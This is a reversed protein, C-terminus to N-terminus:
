SVLQYICETLYIHGFRLPRGCFPQAHLLRAVAEGVSRATRLPLTKYPLPPCAARCMQPCALDCHLQLSYQPCCVLWSHTHYRCRQHRLDSEAPGKHWSCHRATKIAAGAAVSFPSILFILSPDSKCSTSDLSAPFVALNSPIMGAAGCSAERPCQMCRRRLYVADPVSRSCMDCLFANWSEGSPGAVGHTVKGRCEAGLRTGIGACQFMVWPGGAWQRRHVKRRLKRRLGERKVKPLFCDETEGTGDGRGDEKDWFVEAASRAPIASYWTRVDVASPDFGRLVDPSLTRAIPHPGIETGDPAFMRNEGLFSSSPTSVAAPSAARGFVCCLQLIIAATWRM